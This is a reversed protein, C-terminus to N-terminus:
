AGSPCPPSSTQPGPPVQVRTQEEPSCPGQQVALPMGYCYTGSPELTLPALAPAGGQTQNQVPPLHRDADERGESALCQQTTSSNLSTSCCTPFYRYGEACLQPETERCSFIGSRNQLKSIMGARSWPSRQPPFTASSEEPGMM